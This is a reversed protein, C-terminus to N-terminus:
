TKIGIARTCNVKIGGIGTSLWVKHCGTHQQLARSKRTQFIFIFFFIDNCTQPPHPRIRGRYSQVQIVKEITSCVAHFKM